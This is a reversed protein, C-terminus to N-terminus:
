CIIYMLIIHSRKGAVLIEQLQSDANYNDTLILEGDIRVQKGKILKKVQRRSGYGTESLLKDLRM